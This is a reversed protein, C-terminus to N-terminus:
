ALFKWNRAYGHIEPQRETVIARLFGSATRKGKQEAVVPFRDM